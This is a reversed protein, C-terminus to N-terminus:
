LQVADQGTRCFSDIARYAEACACERKITCTMAREECRAYVWNGSEGAKEPNRARERMGETAEHVGSEPDLYLECTQTRDQAHLCHFMLVKVGQLCVAANTDNQDCADHWAVVEGVCEDVELEGGRAQMTEIGKAVYAESQAYRWYSFVGLLVSLSALVGFVVKLSPGDTATEPQTVPTKGPM